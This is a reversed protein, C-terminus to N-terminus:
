SAPRWISPASVATTWTASTSRGGASRSRTSAASGHAKAAPGGDGAFGKQGTGALVSLRDDRGQVSVRNGGMEVVYVNGAADFAVGFSENLGEGAVLVTRASSPAASAGAAAARRDLFGQARLWVACLKPWQSLVADQPALGVGHPGKPFVHLEAPVRAVRLAQYFVISNEVPVTADDETHFLFAPPTRATVRLENSLEEALKPDPADGLLSRRSGTHTFTATFSIVPYALIMLDPRSGMRDVPDAAQPNGDDFRTGATSALHGGASFGMIGVRAPDVGWERARFRVLRLARQADTIPAPHRYRPGVRYQLVFASVGLGNLWEAVQKGEHDSALTRYSGGPCVVVAAGSARDSSARYLTLKPKDGPETGIAGPAGDPWLLVSERDGHATDVPSSPYSRPSPSPTQAAASASALAALLIAGRVAPRM